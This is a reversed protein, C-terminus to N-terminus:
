RDPAESRRAVLSGQQKALRSGPVLRAMLRRLRDATAQHETSGDLDHTEHPDSQLDFLEQHGHPEARIYKKGGSWVAHVPGKANPYHSPVDAWPFRRVSALVPMPPTIERIPRGSQWCHTLPRGPLRSDNLKLVDLVTAPLDALSVVQRVRCGQPLRGPLRMLLPVHTQPQHLSTGHWFIGQEGFQEGHDSTVIVLTNDLEGRRDLEELLEGLQHDLYAICGDYAKAAMRIEDQSARQHITAYFRWDGLVRRDRDTHPGYQQHFPPPPLYPDHADTCNLFAFFPRGAPRRSLWDLLEENVRGAPKSWPGCLRALLERYARSRSHITRSLWVTELARHLSVPDDAYHAFGQALGTHRNCYGLNAVFGATLYGREHLSEALTTLEEPVPDARLNPLEHVHRGTFMGAHSPVTWPATAIARDFVVSSGALQELTPTTPRHHGHLSLSKARVTDWVVLLVNPVEPSRDPLEAIMQQEASWQRALSGGAWAATLLALVITGRAALKYLTEPRTVLWSFAAVALGLALMVEAYGSIGIQLIADLHNLNILLCLSGFLMVAARRCVKTRWRKPLCRGLVALLLGLAAFLCVYAVAPMWQYHSVMASFFVLGFHQKVAYIGAEILGALLGFFVGLLVLNTPKEWRDASAEPQHDGAASIPSDPKPDQRNM